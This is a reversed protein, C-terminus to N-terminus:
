VTVKLAAIAPVDASKSPPTVMSLMVISPVSISKDEPVRVISAALIVRSADSEILVVVAPVLLTLNPAM